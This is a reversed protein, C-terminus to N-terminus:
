RPAPADPDAPMAKLAVFGVRIPLSTKAKSGRRAIGEFSGSVATDGVAEITLRTLTILYRYKASTRLAVTSRKLAEASLDVGVLEGINTAEPVSLHIVARLTPVPATGDFPGGVVYPGSVAKLRLVLEGDGQLFAAYAWPMHIDAVDLRARAFYGEPVRLGPTSPVLPGKASLRPYEVPLFVPETREIEAAPQEVVVDDDDDVELWEPCGALALAAIVSVLVSSRM